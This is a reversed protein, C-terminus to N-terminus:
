KTEAVILKVECQRSMRLTHQGTLLQPTGRPLERGDLQTINRVGTLVTAFWQGDRLTFSVHQRSVTGIGVFAQCGISGERGIIDGDRCKFSQAGVSLLLGPSSSSSPSLAAPQAPVDKVPSSPEVASLDNGCNKGGCLIAFFENPTDCVPCVKKAASAPPEFGAKMEPKAPEEAVVAVDLISQGCSCISDHGPNAQGCVECKKVRRSM